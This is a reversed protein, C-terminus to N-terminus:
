TLLVVTALGELHPPGSETGLGSDVITATCITAQGPMDTAVFHPPELRQKEKTLPTADLEIDACSGCTDVLATELDGDGGDVDTLCCPGLAAELDVHGDSGVCLVLSGALSTGSVTIVVVLAWVTATTLDRRRNM